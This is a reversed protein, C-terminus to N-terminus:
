VLAWKYPTDINRIIEHVDDNWGVFDAACEERTGADNWSEGHWDDREVIGVFNVLDGGRLPYTIVHGGPGIWNTGVLDHFREPLRQKPVLGRWAMCGTFEARDAGFLSQRVTSHVGDAGILIDAQEERSSDFVLSVGSETQTFGVCRAGAVVSGASHQEVAEFLMRHLDARHLMLYPYGYRAVSTAGLDFLKWVQGTSWLRIQKGSPECAVAKVADLVGLQDLVESGNASIQLGAGIEALVAAQEYVKVEFGRKLLALATALGGIGGGVIAIRLNQKM